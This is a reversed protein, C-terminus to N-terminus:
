RGGARGAGQRFVRHSSSGSESIVEAGVQRSPMRVL